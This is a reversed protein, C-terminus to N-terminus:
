QQKYMCRFLPKDIDNPFKITTHTKTVKVEIRPDTNLFPDIYRKTGDLATEIGSLFPRKPNDFWAKGATFSKPGDKTQM